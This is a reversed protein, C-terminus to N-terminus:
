TWPHKRGNIVDRRTSTAHVEGGAPIKVPITRIETTLQLSILFQTWCFVFCLVATAALGGRV